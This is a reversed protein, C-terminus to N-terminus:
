ATLIPPGLTLRGLGHRSIHCCRALPLAVLSLAPAPSGLTALARLPTSANLLVLPLPLTSLTLTSLARVLTAGLGLLPLASPSLSALVHILTSADLWPLPLALSLASASFTSM